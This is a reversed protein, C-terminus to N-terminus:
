NVRLGGHKQLARGHSDGTASGDRGDHATGKRGGDDATLQTVSAKAGHRGTRRAFNLPPAFVSQLQGVSFAEGALVVSFGTWVRAPLVERDTGFPKM